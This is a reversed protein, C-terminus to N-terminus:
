NTAHGHTLRGTARGYMAKWEVLGAELEANEASLRANEVRLRAMETLAERLTVTLKVILENTM